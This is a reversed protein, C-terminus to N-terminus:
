KLIIYLFLTLAVAIGAAAWLLRDKKDWPKKEKPQKIQTRVFQDIIDQAQKVMDTNRNPM